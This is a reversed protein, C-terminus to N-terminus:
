VKSIFLVATLWCKYGNRVLNICETIGDEIVKNGKRDLYKLNFFYKIMRIYIDINLPYLGIEGKVAMNDSKKHVGLAMRLQLLEHKNKDRFLKEVFSDVRQLKKNNVFADWIECNYLLIPAVLSNFLKTVTTIQAGACVNVDKLHGLFARCAKIYLESQARRFNNRPTFVTGLYLECSEIVM